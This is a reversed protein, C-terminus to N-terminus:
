SYHCNLEIKSREARANNMNKRKSVQRHYIMDTSDTGTDSIASLVPKRARVDSISSLEHPDLLGASTFFANDWASSKRLFSPRGPQIPASSLHKLEKQQNVQTTKDRQLSTRSSNSVGNENINDLTVSLRLDELSDFLPSDILCDEESSIDILKLKQDGIDYSFSRKKKEEYCEM